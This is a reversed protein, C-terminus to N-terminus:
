MHLVCYTDQLYYCWHTLQQLSASQRGTSSSLVIYEKEIGGINVVGICKDSFYFDPKRSKTNSTIIKQSLLMSRHGMTPTRFKSQHVTNLSVCTLSCSGPITDLEVLLCCAHSHTVVNSFPVVRWSVIAESQDGGTIGTISYGELWQFTGVLNSQHHIIIHGVVMCLRLFINKILTHSLEGLRIGSTM